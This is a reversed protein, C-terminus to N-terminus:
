RSELRPELDLVHVLNLASDHEILRLGVHLQVVTREGPLVEARIEEIEAVRPDQELATRAFALARVHVRPVNPEGILEHLRSGYTPWGLPALEGQRVELRLTLAQTIADLGNTLALDGGATDVVDFGTMQDALQLDVGFLVARAPDIM